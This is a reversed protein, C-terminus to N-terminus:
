SSRLVHISSSSDPSSTGRQCMCILCLCVSESDQCVVSTERGRNDPYVLSPLSGGPRAHVVARAAFVASLAPLLFAGDYLVPHACFLSLERVLALSPLSARSLSSHSSALGACLRLPPSAASAAHHETPARGDASPSAPVAFTEASVSRYAQAADESVTSLNGVVVAMACRGGVLVTLKIQTEDTETARGRGGQRRTNREKRGKVGVLREEQRTRRSRTM